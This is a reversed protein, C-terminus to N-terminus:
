PVTTKYYDNISDNISDDINNNNNNNNSAQQLKKCENISNNICHKLYQPKTIIKLVIIM